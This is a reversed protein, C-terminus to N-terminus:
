TSCTENSLSTSGVSSLLSCSLSQTVSRIAQAIFSAIAPPTSLASDDAAAVGGGSELGNHALVLRVQRRGPAAAQRKGYGMRSSVAAGFWRSALAAITAEMASAASAKELRFITQLSRRRKSRSPRGQSNLAYAGIDQCSLLM